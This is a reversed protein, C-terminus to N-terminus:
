DGDWHIPHRDHGRGGPWPYAVSAVVLPIGNSQFQSSFLCSGRAVWGTRRATFADEASSYRGIGYNCLFRRLRPGEVPIRISSRWVRLAPIWWGMLALRHWGLLRVDRDVATPSVIFCAGGPDGVLHQYMCVGNSPQQSGTAFLQLYRARQLSSALFQNKVNREKNRM